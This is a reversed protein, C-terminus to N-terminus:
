QADRHPSDSAKGEPFNRVLPSIQRFLALCCHSPPEFRRRGELAEIPLEGLWRIKWLRSTESRVVAASPKLKTTTNPKHNPEKQCDIAFHKGAGFKQYFVSAKTDMITTEIARRYKQGRDTMREDRHRLFSARSMCRGFCGDM